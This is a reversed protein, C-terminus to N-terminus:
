LVRAAAEDDGTGLGLLFATFERTKAHTAMYGLRLDEADLKDRMALLRSTGELRIASDGSSLSKISASVDQRSPRAATPGDGTGSGVLAVLVIAGAISAPM